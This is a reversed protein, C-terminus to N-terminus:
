RAPAAAEAEVQDDDVATWQGSEDPVVPAEPQPQDGLGTGPETAVPQIVSGTVMGDAPPQAEPASGDADVSRRSPERLSMYAGLGIVGIGGALWFPWLPAHATSEFVGVYALMAVVAAGALYRGAQALDRRM